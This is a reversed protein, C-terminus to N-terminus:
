IIGLWAELWRSAGSMLLSGLGIRGIDVREDTGVVGVRHRENGRPDRKFIWLATGVEIAAAIVDKRASCPSFSSSATVIASSAAFIRCSMKVCSARAHAYKLAPRVVSAFRVIRRASRVPVLSRSM